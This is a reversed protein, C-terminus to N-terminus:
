GSGPITHWAAMEFGMRHTNKTQSTELLVKNNKMGIGMSQFDLKLVKWFSAAVNTNLPPTRITTQAVNSLIYTITTPASQEKENM